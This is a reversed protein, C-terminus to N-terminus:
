SQEKAVRYLPFVYKPPCPCQSLLKISFESLDRSERYCQVALRQSAGGIADWAEVCENRPLPNSLSAQIAAVASDIRQQNWGAAALQGFRATDFHAAGSV